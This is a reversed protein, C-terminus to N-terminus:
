NLIKYKSRPGGAIPAGGPAAAGGAPPPATRENLQQAWALAQQAMAEPSDYDDPDMGNLISVVRRRIGEVQSFNFRERSLGQNGQSIGLRAEAIKLADKSRKQREQLRLYPLAQEAPLRMTQGDVDVSFDGYREQYMRSLTGERTEPTEPGMEGMPPLQRELGTMRTQYQAEEGARAKDLVEQHGQELDQGQQASAMDAQAMQYQVIIQSAEKASVKGDDALAESYKQALKQLQPFKRMTEPTLKSLGQVAKHALDITRGEEEFERQRRDNLQRLKSGAFGAGLGAIADGFSLQGGSMKSAALAILPAGAVAWWNSPGGKKGGGGPPNIFAQPNMAQMEPEDSLFESGPVLGGGYSTLGYPM